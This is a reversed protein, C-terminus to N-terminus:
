QIRKPIFTYIQEGILLYAELLAIFNVAFAM